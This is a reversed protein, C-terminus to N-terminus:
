AEALPHVVTQHRHEEEDDPELDLALEDLALERFRALRRQRHDGRETPHRHGREDVDREVGASSPAVTPANGHGGVDRDRQADEGEEPASDSGM